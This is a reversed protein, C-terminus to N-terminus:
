MWRLCLNVPFSVFSTGLRDFKVDMEFWQFHRSTVNDTGLRDFKM